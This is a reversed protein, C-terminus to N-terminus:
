APILPSEKTYCGEEGPTALGRAHLDDCVAQAGARTTYPGLYEIWYCCRLSEPSYRSSDLVNVAGLGRASRADADNLVDGLVFSAQDKSAVLTIWGSRPELLAASETPTMPGTVPLTTTTAIPATTITTATSAREKQTTFTEATPDDGLTGVLLVAALGVVASAVAFLGIATWPPRSRSRDPATAESPASQAVARTVSAAITPTGIAEGCVRCFRAGKDLPAGCRTCAAPTM